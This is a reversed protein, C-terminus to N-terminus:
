RDRDDEGRHDPDIADLLSQTMDDVASIVALNAEYAAKAQVLTTAERLLDVRPPSGSVSNTVTRVDARVTGGSGVSSQEVRQPVYGDTSANAINRAAVEFRLAEAALGSRATEFASRLM